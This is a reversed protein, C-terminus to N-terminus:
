QIISIFFFVLLKLPSHLFSLSHDNSGLITLVKAANFQLRLIQIIRLHMSNMGEYKMRMQGCYRMWNKYCDFWIHKHETRFHILSEGNEYDFSMFNKMQMLSRQTSYCQDSYKDSIDDTMTSKHSWITPVIWTSQSQHSPVIVIFEYCFLIRHYFLPPEM